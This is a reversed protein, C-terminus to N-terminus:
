SVTRQRSMCQMKDYADRGDSSVARRIGWQVPQLLCLCFCVCYDSLM